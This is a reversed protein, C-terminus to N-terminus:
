GDEAQEQRMASCAKANGAIARAAQEHRGVYTRQAKRYESHWALAWCMAACILALVTM